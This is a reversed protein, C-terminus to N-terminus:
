RWLLNFLKTDYGLAPIFYDTSYADIMNNEYVSMWNIGGNDSISYITYIDGVNLKNNYDKKMGICIVKEGVKFDM